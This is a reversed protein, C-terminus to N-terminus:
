PFCCTTWVLQGCVICHLQLLSINNRSCRLITKTQLLPNATSRSLSLPSFNLVTNEETAMWTELM